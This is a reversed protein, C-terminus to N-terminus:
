YCCDHYFNFFNSDNFKEKYFSTNMMEIEILDYFLIREKENSNLCTKIHLILYIKTKHHDGINNITSISIKISFCYHDFNPMENSYLICALFSCEQISKFVLINVM